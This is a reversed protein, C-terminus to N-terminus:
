NYQQSGAKFWGRKGYCLSVGTTILSSYMCVSSHGFYMNVLVLGLALAKPLPM